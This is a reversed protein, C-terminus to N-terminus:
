TIKWFQLGEYRKEIHCQFQIKIKFIYFEKHNCNYSLFCTNIYLLWPKYIRLVVQQQPCGTHISKVLYCPFLIKYAFELIGIKPSFVPKRILSRKFPLM